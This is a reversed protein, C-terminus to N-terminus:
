RSACYPVKLYTLEAEENAMTWAKINRVVQLLTRSRMSNSNGTCVLVSTDAELSRAVLTAQWAEPTEFCPNRRFRATIIYPFSPLRYM